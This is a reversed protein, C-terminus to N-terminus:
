ECLLRHQILWLEYTQLDITWLDAVCYDYISIYVTIITFFSKLNRQDFSLFGRCKKLIKSFLEDKFSGHHKEVIWLMEIKEKCVEWSKGLAHDTSWGQRKVFTQPFFESFPLYRSELPFFPILPPTYVFFSFFFIWLFYLWLLIGKDFNFM